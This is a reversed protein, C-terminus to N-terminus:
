FKLIETQRIETSCCGRSDKKTKGGGKEKKYRFYDEGTKKMEV